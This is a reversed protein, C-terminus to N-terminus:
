PGSHREIFEEVLSNFTNADECYPAHGVGQMEVHHAEPLDAILAALSAPKVVIDHNASLILIPATIDPLYDTTDLHQMAAGGWEIGEVGISGAISVLFEEIEPSPTGSLMKGIRLTGYDHDNLRSRQKIRNLVDKSLPDGEPSARGKHTCSLVLGRCKNGTRAAIIQALMGGMSHGILWFSSLGLDCLMQTVDDAFSAMGGKFVSTEGFGPADISIVRSSQFHSFQYQWSASSGNFGHLFVLTPTRATVDAPEQQRFSIGRKVNQVAFVQPEPLSSPAPTM